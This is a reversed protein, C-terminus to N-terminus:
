ASSPMRSKQIHSSNLRTSKRDEVFQFLMRQPVNVVLGDALGDPVIHHNDLKLVQGPRLVAKTTLGNDRAIVDHDVGYRAGIKILFDGPVVTYDIQGGTTLSRYLEAAAAPLPWLIAVLVLVPVLILLRISSRKCIAMRAMRAVM